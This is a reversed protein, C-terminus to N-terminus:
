LLCEAGSVKPASTPSNGRSDRKVRNGAHRMAAPLSIIMAPTDIQDATTSALTPSTVVTMVAYKSTTSIRIFSANALSTSWDRVPPPSASDALFSRSAARFNM